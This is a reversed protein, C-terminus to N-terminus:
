VTPMLQLSPRGQRCDSATVLKAEATQAVLADLRWDTKWWWGDFRRDAIGTAIAIETPEGDTGRWGAVVLRRGAAVASIGVRRGVATLNGYGSKPKRRAPEIGHEVLAAKSAADAVENNERPHWFLTVRWGAKHLRKMKCRCREYIPRISPSAVAWNGALQEVVLMSDGYIVLTDPLSMALAADLVRELAMYEAVNNTNTPAAEVFHHAPAGDITWGLGMAGGPNYPECAGDFTAIM